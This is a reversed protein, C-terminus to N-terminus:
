RAMARRAEYPDPTFEHVPEFDPDAAESAAALSEERKERLDRIAIGALAAFFLPYTTLLLAQFSEEDLAFDVSVGAFLLNVLVTTVFTHYTRRWTTRDRWIGFYFFYPVLGVAVFAWGFVSLLGFILAPIHALIFILAILRVGPTTTDTALQRRLYTTSLM